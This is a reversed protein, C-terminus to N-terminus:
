FFALLCHSPTCFRLRRSYCRRPELSNGAPKEDRFRSYPSRENVNESSPRRNSPEATPLNVRDSGRCKSDVKRGYVSQGRRTNRVIRRSAGRGPAKGSHLPIAQSLLLSDSFPLSTKPHYRHQTTDIPLLLSILQWIKLGLELNLCSLRCKASKLFFLPLVIPLYM